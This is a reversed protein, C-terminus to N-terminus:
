AGHHALLRHAAKAQRRAGNARPGRAEGRTARVLGVFGVDALSQAPEGVFVGLQTWGLDTAGLEVVRSGEALQM